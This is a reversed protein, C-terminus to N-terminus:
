VSGRPPQPPNTPSRFLRAVAAARCPWGAILGNRCLRTSMSPRSHPFALNLTRVRAFSGSPIPSLLATPLVNRQEFRCQRFQSQGCALEQGDGGLGVGVGFGLNLAVVTGQAIGLSARLADAPM